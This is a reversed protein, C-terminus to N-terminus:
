GTSTLTDVTICMKPEYGLRLEKLVKTWSNANYEDYRLICMTYVNKTSVRFLSNM